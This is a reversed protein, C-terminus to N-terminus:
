ASSAFTGLKREAGCCEFALVRAPPLNAWVIGSARQLFGPLSQRENCSLDYTFQVVHWRRWGTRAM